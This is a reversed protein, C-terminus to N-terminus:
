KKWADAPAYGRKVPKKEGDAAKADAPKGGAPKADAAAVEAPKAAGGRTVQEVYFGQKELLKLIGNKGILHGAGVVVFHPEKSRLFTEIKRAMKENREDFLKAFVDKLAPRNGLPGTILLRELTAADGNKWSAVTGQMLGEAEDVSELASALFEAELKDPFGSLLKVQDDATELEVVRKGNAREMFHRDIGLESKYGLAQMELMTITVSLAWPKFKEMAEPPLGKDAFYARVNKLTQAPVHNGLTDNGEYTGKGLLTEQMADQDVKTLDVEVALVKCDAFAKEIEEPMPYFGANGVHISGLLYVFNNNSRAKWMFLRDTGGRTQAAVPTPRILSVLAIIALMAHGAVHGPARRRRTM